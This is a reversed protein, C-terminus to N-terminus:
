RAVPKLAVKGDKVVIEFDINKGAHKQMLKPMMGRVSSAVSEFKVDTREQNQRRAEVYREYIKRMHDDAIGTSASPPPAPRAGGAAPPM